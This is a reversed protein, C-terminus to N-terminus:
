TATSSEAVEPSSAPSCCLRLWAYGMLASIISAVLVGAKAEDRLSGDVYALGTIFLSVTFGIGGLMGAGAIHKWTASQPLTALGTRVAVWSAFFVGSFKGLILGAAIGISVPSTSADRALDSDIALGANALAFVPVVLYSVWPHLFHEIRDLPSTSGRSLGELQGVLARQTDTDGETQATRIRAMLEAASEDFDQADFRASSPTLMALIVGAITAHIGSKLVALWFLIGLVLYVDTSRVNARKAALLVVLMAGAWALAELSISETYFLAIVLIAGLDDVIAFALLFVKVGFPIRNGLLMLVGLAFAIDTAMPIGWGHSGSGGANIVAFILAPVVMGGAAAALPLTARRRSSLEGHVFERKIELGVVFFFVTMLGDNVLKGLTKEVKFLSTDISLQRNWLDFYSADWPSNAWLIAIFAAAFLLFAGSAETKVFAQAPRFVREAM